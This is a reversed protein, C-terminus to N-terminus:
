EECTHRQCRPENNRLITALFPCKRMRNVIRNHLPVQKCCRTLMGTPLPALRVSPVPTETQM